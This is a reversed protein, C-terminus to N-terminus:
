DDLISLDILMEKTLEPQSELDELMLNFDLENDGEAAGFIFQAVLAIM